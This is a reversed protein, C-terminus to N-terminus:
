KSKFKDRIGWTQTVKVVSRRIDSFNNRLDKMLNYTNELVKAVNGLEQKELQLMKSVVSIEELIKTQFVIM